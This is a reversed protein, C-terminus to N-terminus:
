RSPQLRALESLLRDRVQLFAMRAAGSIPDASPLKRRLVEFNEFKGHFTIRFDLHPGTALGTMGVLGVRQGQVVHQGRHVLIRSLHLYLTQYGNNHNLKVMNGGGGSWGASLVTGAGIAQVPTGMPAAYDVGLHPRYEKLIPHYRHETFGSSVRAAFKLPSSLFARKLPHGDPRFYTVEGQADHFRIADYVHGANVYEAALIRGYGALQGDLYRKAVVVRFIDGPRPDTYFDLDFGFIQALALALTDKEGAANVAAFLSGDIRGAVGETRTMYQLQTVAAHYGQPDHTVTLERDQDIRYQLLRLEGARSRVLLVPNGARVHGLDYQPRVATLLAAITGDDLHEGALFAPFTSHPPLATEKRVLRLPANRRADARAEAGQARWASEAGAYASIVHWLIWLGAAAIVGLRLIM